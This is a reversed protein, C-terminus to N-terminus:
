SNAALKAEEIERQKKAEDEAAERMLREYIENATDQNKNYDEMELAFYAKSFADSHDNQKLAREAIGKSIDDNLDDLYLMEDNPYNDNVTDKINDPGLDINEESDTQIFNVDWWKILNSHIASKRNMVDLKDM